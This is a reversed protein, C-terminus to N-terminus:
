KQVYKVKLKEEAIQEITKGARAAEVKLQRHREESVVIFKRKAM